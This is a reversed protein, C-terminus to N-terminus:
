KLRYLLTRGPQIEAGFRDVGRAVVKSTLLELVDGKGEDFNWHAVLGKEVEAWGTVCFATIAILVISARRM